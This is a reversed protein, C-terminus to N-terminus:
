SVPFPWDGVSPQRLWREVADSNNSLFQALQEFLKEAAGLRWDQLQFTMVHRGFVARRCDAKVHDSARLRRRAGSAHDSLPPPEAGERRVSRRWRSAPRAPSAQLCLTKVFEVGERAAQPSYADRAFKM